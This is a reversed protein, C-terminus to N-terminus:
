FIAELFFQYVLSCTTKVFTGKDFMDDWKKVHESESIWEMLLEIPANIRTSGKVCSLTSQAGPAGARKM